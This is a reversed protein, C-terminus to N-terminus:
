RLRGNHEKTVSQIIKKVQRDIQEDELSSKMSNFCLNFSASKCGEDVGKGRYLDFFEVSQLHKGGHNRITHLIEGIMVSEDIQFSLDRRNDPFRSVESVSIGARYYEQLNSLNLELYYVSQDIDFGEALEPELEGYTMVVKEALEITCSNGTFRSDVEPLRRLEIDFRSSFLNAIGQMDYFGFQKEQSDWSKAQRIGTLLASLVFDERCNNYVQDNFDYTRGIEFIAISRNSRNLNYAATMLLSPMMSTRLVALDESIPNNVNIPKESGSTTQGHQQRSIMSYTSVEQLGARVAIERLDARLPRMKEIWPKLPVLSRESVPINEYGHLRIIEEIIDIERDLDFRFTPVTVLYDDGEEKVELQLRRLLSIQTSLPIEM